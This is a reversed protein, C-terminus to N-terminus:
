PTPTGYITIALKIGVMFLAAIVIYVFYKRTKEGKLKLGIQTGFWTGLFGGVLMGILLYQSVNGETVHGIVANLSVIWVFLLSTGAAKATHQGILYILAPLMIVGGGTGMLSTLVGTCLGFTMIPVLPTKPDDLSNFHTYPPFMMKDFLGTRKDDVKGTPRKLDFTIFGAVWALLVLFMALLTIEILQHEKGLITVAAADKLLILIRLGIWVGIVGGSALWLALKVDVTKTGRRKAMGVTSNFFVIALGTGVAIHYDIGLLIMLAPTLLFGGGVGFIGTMFGVAVAILSSGIYQIASFDNM